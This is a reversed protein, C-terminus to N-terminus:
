RSDPEQDVRAKAEEVFLRQREVSRRSVSQFTELARQFDSAVKQQEQRQQTQRLRSEDASEPTCARVHM